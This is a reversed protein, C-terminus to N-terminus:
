LLNSSFTSNLLSSLCSVFTGTRVMSALFPRLANCTYWRRQHVHLLSFKNVHIFITLDSVWFTSLLNCAGRRFLFCSAFITINISDLVNNHTLTPFRGAQNWFSYVGMALASDFVKPGCAVLSVFSIERVPVSGRGVKSWGAQGQAQGTLWHRTLNM